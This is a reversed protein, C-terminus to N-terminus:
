GLWGRRLGHRGRMRLLERSESRRDFMSTAVVAGLAALAVSGIAVIDLATISVAHSTNPVVDSRTFTVAATGTFHMLSIAAGLLLAAAVRKRRPKDGGRFFFMLVLSMFSFAAAMAISLVVLTIAYHHMVPARMSGMAIYHLASVALSMIITGIVAQRRGLTPRTVALLAALSAAFASTFSNLATPWDYQTPVPLHFALMATYHMSWLGISTALVGGALWATRARGKAFTVRETVDLSAWAGAVAILISLAVAWADYTGDLVEM